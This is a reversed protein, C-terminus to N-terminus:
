LPFSYWPAMRVASRLWLPLSDDPTLGFAAMRARRWRPLTGMEAFIAIIMSELAKGAFASRMRAGIGMFVLCAILGNSFTLNYIPQFISVQM